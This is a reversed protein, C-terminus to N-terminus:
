RISRDALHDVRYVAFQGFAVRRYPAQAARLRTGLRHDDRGGRRVVYASPGVQVARHQAARDRVVGRSDALITRRSDFSIPYAVWYGARVARVHQDHLVRTLRTLDPPHAEKYAAERNTTTVLAGLVSVTVALAAVLAVLQRKPTVLARCALLIAFPVLLQLFRPEGTYVTQIPIAYVLPYGLMVILVPQWRRGEAARRRVMSTVFVAFGVLAAVYLVPGVPGMLWRGTYPARLGLAQPLSRFALLQLRELYTSRALRDRLDMSAWSHHANWWLWPLAGLAAAPAVLWLEREAFCRVTLWIGLPVFVFVTQPNTWWGMGAFVGFAVLDARRGAEVYRLAFLVGLLVLVMASWYIGRAKTSWWVSFPPYVLLLAGAFAAARAELVRRGIRWLILASTAAFVVPVLKLAWRSPGLAFFALGTAAPEIAGGYNQGWFMASLHGHSFAMGMLGVVAEDGDVRGLPSRLVWWRLVVAVFVGLAVVARGDLRRRTVAEVGVAM